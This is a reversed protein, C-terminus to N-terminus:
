SKLNYLIFMILVRARAATIAMNAAQLLGAVSSAATTSSAGAASVTISAVGAAGISAAGISAARISAARGTVVGYYSLSTKGAPNFLFAM